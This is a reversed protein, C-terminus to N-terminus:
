LILIWTKNTCYTSRHNEWKPQWQGTSKHWGRCLCCTTNICTWWPASGSLNWKQVWSSWINRRFKEMSICKELNKALLWIHYLNKLFDIWIHFKSYPMKIRQKLCLNVYQTCKEPVENKWLCNQNCTIECISSHQVTRAWGLDDHEHYDRYSYFQVDCIIFQVSYQGELFTSRYHKGRM